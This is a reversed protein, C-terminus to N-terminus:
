RRGRGSNVGEYGRSEYEEVTNIRRPAANTAPTMVESEGHMNGTNGSMSAPLADLM